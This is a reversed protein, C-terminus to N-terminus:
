CVKTTTTMTWTSSPLCRAMQSHCQTRDRALRRLSTTTHLRSPRAMPASTHSQQLFKVLMPTPSTATPAQLHQFLLLFLSSHKLYLLFISTHRTARPLLRPLLHGTLRNYLSLLLHARVRPSLRRMTIHNNPHSHRTHNPHSLHNNTRTRVTPPRHQNVLVCMMCQHWRLVTFPLDTINRQCQHLLGTAALGTLMDTRRLLGQRTRPRTPLHPSTATTFARNHLPLLPRTPTLSINYLHNSCQSNRQHHLHPSHKSCTHPNRTNSAPHHVMHLDLSLVVRHPRLHQVAM